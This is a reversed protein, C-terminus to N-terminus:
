GLYPWLFALILTGFFGACFGLCSARIKEDEPTRYM